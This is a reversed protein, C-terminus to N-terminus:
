NKKKFKLLDLNLDYLTAKGDNRHYENKCYPVTDVFMLLIKCIEVFCYEVNYQSYNIQRMNIVNDKDKITKSRSHFLQLLHKIGIHVFHNFGNLYHLHVDKNDNIHRKFNLLSNELDYLTESMVEDICIEEDIYIQEDINESEM